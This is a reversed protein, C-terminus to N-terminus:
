WSLAHIASVSTRSANMAVSWVGGQVSSTVIICSFLQCVSRVCPGDLCQFLGVLQGTKDLVRRVAVVLHQVEKYATLWTSWISGVLTAPLQLEVGLQAIHTASSCGRWYWPIRRTYQCGVFVCVHISSGIIVL